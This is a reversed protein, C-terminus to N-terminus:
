TPVERNELVRRVVATYELPGYTPVGGNIVPRDLLTALVASLTEDDNVGLGFVQSDGVVLIEDDSPPALASGRFGGPGIHIETVPNTAVRLRTISRPELAVGLEEDAVYVNLHPFAGEDRMSFTVEAIALGVCLGLLISLAAVLWRGAGRRKAPPTVTVPPTATVPVSEPANQSPPTTM